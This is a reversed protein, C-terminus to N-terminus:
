ECIDIYSALGYRAGANQVCRLGPQCEADSDCDGQGRACPCNASCYAFDFLQGVHCASSQQPTSGNNNTGTSGSGPRYSWDEFPSYTCVWHHPGAGPARYLLYASAAINAEPNFANAGPFGSNAAREAWYQPLHQFLGSASFGVPRHHRPPLAVSIIFCRIAAPM